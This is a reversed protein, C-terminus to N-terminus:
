YAEPRVVSTSSIKPASDFLARLQSAEEVRNQKALLAVLDNLMGRTYDHSKGLVRARGFLVERYIEGALGLKGLKEYHLGLRRRVELRQPHDESLMTKCREAAQLWTSEAADAEDLQSMTRALTSMTGITLIHYEGFVSKAPPLLDQFVAKAEKWAQLRTLSFGLIYRSTLTYPHLEGRERQFTNRIQQQHLIGVSCSDLRGGTAAIMWSLVPIIPNTPALLSQSVDMADELFGETAKTQGHSLLVSMLLCPATLLLDDERAVMSRFIQTAESHMMDAHEQDGQNKLLCTMFCRSLWRYSASQGPPVWARNLISDDLDSPCRELSPLVKRPEPAKLETAELKDSAEIHPRQFDNAGTQSRIEIPVPSLQRWIDVDYYGCSPPSSKSSISWALHDFEDTLESLNLDEFRRCEGSSRLPTEKGPSSQSSQSDPTISTDCGSPKEAFGENHRQTEMGTPESLSHTPVQTKSRPKPKKKNRLPTSSTRHFLEQGESSSFSEEDDSKRKRSNPPVLMAEDRSLTRPRRKTALGWGKVRSRYM